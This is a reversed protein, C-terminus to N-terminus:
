GWWKAKALSILEFIRGDDDYTTRGSLGQIWRKPFADAGHLAGVMAGVISAITDNDKTDNVARIVAQEPDSGHRMMIYLACPVTELLYAGSWWMAAAERVSLNREMASGLQEQIFDWPQVRTGAYAGGRVTYAGGLTIDKAYDIQSTWWEPGPNRNMDLLQWLLYTFLTCASISLDNNHTIMACLATDVMIGPGGTKLYPITTPSIRMLAGNGASDPGAHEWSVGAKMNEIFRRVTGGIGFIRERTFRLALESPILGDCDLLEELTWFTLQTDDSPFGKVEDSFPTPLYDTIEGYQSMRESPRMSETPRGLADGIAAGLLM